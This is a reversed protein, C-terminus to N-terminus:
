GSTRLNNTMDRLYPRINQLQVEISLEEGGKTKYRIYTNNFTGASKKPKCDKPTSLPKEPRSVPTSKVNKSRPAPTPSKKPM